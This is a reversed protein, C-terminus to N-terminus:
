IMKKFAIDYKSAINNWYYKNIKRKNFKIQINRKESDQWIENITEVLSLENNSKFFNIKFDAGMEKNPPTDSAIVATGVSIAELLPLSSSEYLTATIFFRSQAYLALLIEFSVKGFYKVNSALHNKDIFNFIQNSSSFKDGTLILNISLNNEDRLIKIAKLVTLHDKHHWLQAPYFIYESKINLKSIIRKAKIKSIQFEKNDVGENIFFINSKKLNSYNKLFDNKIFISSAQVYDAKNMTAYYNKNRHVRRFFNFYEPFHIHQIDHVSVISPKKNSYYQLTPSPTYIIDCMQDIKRQLDSFIFNALAIHIKPPLLIVSTNFILKKLYYFHDIIIIKINKHNKIDDFIHHNKKHVFILYNNKKIKLLGNILGFTFATVGGVYHPKISLCNIGVRM